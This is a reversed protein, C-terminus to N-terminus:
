GGKLPPLWGGGGGGGVGRGRWDGGSPGRLPDHCSICANYRDCTYLHTSSRSFIILVGICRYNNKQTLGYYTGLFRVLGSTSWLLRLSLSCSIYIRSSGPNSSLLRNRGLRSGIANPWLSPNLTCLVWSDFFAKQFLQDIQFQDRCDSQACDMCHNFHNMLVPLAKSLIQWGMGFSLVIGFHRDRERREGMERTYCSYSRPVPPHLRILEDLQTLAFSWCSLCLRSRIKHM